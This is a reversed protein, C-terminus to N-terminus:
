GSSVARLLSNNRMNDRAAEPTETFVSAIVRTGAQYVDSSYGNGLSSARTSAEKGVLAAVEESHLLAGVGAYNVEIRVKSM